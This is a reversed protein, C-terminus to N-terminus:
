PRIRGGVLKAGLRAAKPLHREVGGSLIMGAYLTAVVKAHLITRCVERIMPTARDCLPRLLRPTAGTTVLIGARRARRVRPTPIGKILGTTAPKGATWVIRELFTKMVATVASLNVPTGFLFADAAVLKPMLEDMDDRIACEAYEAAPDTDKCAVCNRCYEIRKEALYVQEVEVDPRRARASAVAADMLTDITRGRRYSGNIALLKMTPSVEWVVKHGRAERAKRAIRDHRRPRALGRDAGRTKTQFSRRARMFYCPRRFRRSGAGGPQM